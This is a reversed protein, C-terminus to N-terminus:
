VFTFALKPAPREAVKKVKQKVVEIPEDDDSLEELALQAKIQKKKIAIAKKVVKEETEKKSEALIKEAEERRRKANADRTAVAKKFADLQAQTKPPRPKYERKPKPTAPTEITEDDSSVNEIKLEPESM